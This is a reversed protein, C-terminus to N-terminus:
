GKKRDARVFKAYGARQRYSVPRNLRISDLHEHRECNDEDPPHVGERYAVDDVVDVPSTMVPKVVPSEERATELYFTPRSTRSTSLRSAM